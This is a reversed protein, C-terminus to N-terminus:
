HSQWVYRGWKEPNNKVTVPWTDDVQLLSFNQGFGYPDRLATMNEEIGWHITEHDLESHSFSRIKNSIFERNGLYSFHWGADKILRTEDPHGRRLGEATDIDRLKAAKISEDEGALVNLAYYFTPTHLRVPGDFSERFGAVVSRRPIEDADSVILIDDDGAIEKALSGIWNRQYTEREWPGGQVGTMGITVHKIKDKYKAWREDGPHYFPMKGDGRFTQWAQVLIFKDVVPYLEELRLELLDVENYFIFGDVIM